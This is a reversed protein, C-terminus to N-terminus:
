LSWGLTFFSDDILRFLLLGLPLGLTLGLSLSMTHIAVQLFFEKLHM